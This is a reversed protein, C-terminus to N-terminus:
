TQDFDLRVRATLPRSQCALVYGAEIEWPELSYNVDMTVKGELLKCRCTCCMGGKCSYPVRVGAKQAADVVHEGPPVAFRHQVGDLIAVVESGQGPSSVSKPLAPEPRQQYAGGGPAFFEHHIRERPIGLEMLANRAEKIMTGPGCLFVHAVDEVRLLKQAFARVKAGDMRGQLLATDAEGRSLVHLLAFRTIYRDKLDALEDRFLITDASRNGYFLTVETRPEAVLAHKVMAIIPTIGVGAALAVIHRPSGDSEPLIFRGAPPLAEIQQGAKLMDHAWHSFRGGAVRKIAIRLHEEGPGSCISYTRRFEEGDLRVRFALHQGPKFRFAERLAPPAALAVSIADPLERRVESITLRQFDHM